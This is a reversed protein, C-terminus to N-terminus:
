KVEEKSKRLEEIEKELANLKKRMEKKSILRAEFQVGLLFMRERIYNM